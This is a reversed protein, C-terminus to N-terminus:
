TKTTFWKKVVQYLSLEKFEDKGNEGEVEGAILKQELDDIRNEMRKKDQKLEDIREKLDKIREDKEQIIQKESGNLNQKDPKTNPKNGEREPNEMEDKVQNLASNLDYNDQELQHIRDLVTLGNDTIQYQRNNEGKVLGNFNDKVWLVRKRAQMYSWNFREELDKITHM